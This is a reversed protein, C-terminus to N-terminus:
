AVAMELELVKMAATQLDDGLEKYRPVDSSYDRFFEMIGELKRKLSHVNGKKPTSKAAEVISKMLSGTWNALTEMEFQIGALEGSMTIGMRFLAFNSHCEPKDQSNFWPNDVLDDDEAGAPIMYESRLQKVSEPILERMRKVEIKELKTLNWWEDDGNFYLNTWNTKAAMMTKMLPPEPNTVRWFSQHWMICKFEYRLATTIKTRMRACLETIRVGNWANLHGGAQADYSLFFKVIDIPESLIAELESLTAIEGEPM